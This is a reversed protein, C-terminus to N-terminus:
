SDNTYPFNAPFRSIVRRVTEFVSRYWPLLRHAQTGQEGQTKRQKSRGGHGVAKKGGVEVEFAPGIAIGRRRQLRDLVLEDSRDGRDSGPIVGDFHDEFRVEGPDPGRLPAMGRGPDAVEPVRLDAERCSHEVRELDVEEGEADQGLLTPDIQLDARDLIRVIDRAAGERKEEPHRHRFDGIGDIGRVVRATRAGSRPLRIEVRREDVVRSVHVRKQHAHDRVQGSVPRSRLVALRRGPDAVEVAPFKRHPATEGFVKVDRHPM